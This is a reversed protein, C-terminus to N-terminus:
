KFLNIIGQNSSAKKIGDLVGSSTPAFISSLPNQGKMISTGVSSLDLSSAQKLQTNTGLAINKANIINQVASGIDGNQIDNIINGGAGILAGPNRLPSPTDDYHIEDFGLVTGNSVPGSDYLVGEYAVTMQHEMPTYSGASHEGHAFSTIMPRILTYSSFRKQHLSYIRISNIYPLNGTGAQKPSFGWGQKQRQKYKSDDKYNDIIGYDSDRYYFTYYNYWFKRVIDASDDHFTISVPDYNIKEQQVTKRNYANHVKNQINFKPLAASKAMLGVEIQDTQAMAAIAQNVDIYVHFLNGLKPSLRYLGDIFTRAAHQYDRINQQPAISQLLGGFINNQSM